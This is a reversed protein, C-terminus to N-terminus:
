AALTSRLSFSRWAAQLKVSTRDLSSELLWACSHLSFLLVPKSSYRVLLFSVVVIRNSRM